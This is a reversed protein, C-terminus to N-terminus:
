HIWSVVKDVIVKEEADVSWGSGAVTFETNAQVEKFRDRTDAQSKRPLKGRNPELIQIKDWNSKYSWIRIHHGIM